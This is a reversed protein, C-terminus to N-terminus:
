FVYKGIQDLYPIGRGACHQITEVDPSNRTGIQYNLNKTITFLQYVGEYVYNYIRARYLSIASKKVNIKRSRSRV